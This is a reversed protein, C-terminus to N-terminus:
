EKLNRVIRHLGTRELPTNKFLRKFVPNEMEMWDSRQLQMVEQSPIFDAVSHQRARGNWPCVEQCIDCGFVRDEALRKIEVPYEGKNEITHYSICKRADLRHLSLAGTPCAEVCKKCRGCYDHGQPESYFDWEATTVVVGIFCFSGLERSILMTNNGIWGLGARRAWEREFVPASDVFCRGELGESLSKLREKIVLHYDKGYAYRAIVPVGEAQKPETYYNTLTVIVSRAGEVLLAADERKETNREMYSMDGQCGESLWTELWARDEPLKEARVVGIADFGLESAKLRLEDFCATKVGSM